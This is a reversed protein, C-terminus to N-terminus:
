RICQRRVSIYCVVIESSPYWSLKEGERSKHLSNHQMYITYGHIILRTKEKADLIVSLIICIRHFNMQYHDQEEVVEM